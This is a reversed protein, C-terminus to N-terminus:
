KRGKGTTVRYLMCLEYFEAPTLQRVEIGHSGMPSYEPGLGDIEQTAAVPHPRTQSQPTAAPMTPKLWKFM